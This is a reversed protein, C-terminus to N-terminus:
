IIENTAYKLNNNIRVAQTHLEAKAKDIEEYPNQVKPRSLYNWFTFSLLSIFTLPYIHNIYSSFMLPSSKKKYLFYLVTLITAQASFTSSINKPQVLTTNYCACDYLNLMNELQKLYYMEQLNRATYTRLPRTIDWQGSRPQRDFEAVIQQGIEKHMPLEPVHKYDGHDNFRISSPKVSTM